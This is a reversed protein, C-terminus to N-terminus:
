GTEKAHWCSCISYRYLEFHCFSLPVSPNSLPFGKLKRFQIVGLLEWCPSGCDVGSAAAQNLSGESCTTCIFFLSGAEIISGTICKYGCETSKDPSM